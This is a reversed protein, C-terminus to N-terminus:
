IASCTGCDLCGAQHGSQPAAPWKNILVQVDGNFTIVGDKNLDACQDYTGGSSPWADILTQVDGNFTLYCDGNTDGCDFCDYSWCAPGSAVTVSCTGLSAGADSGDYLIVGGRFTDEEAISVTTDGSVTIKCLTGADAPANPSDFDTPTHLSCLELIVSSTGTGTGAAGPDSAPAVPTGYDDVAGTTSNVDITGPYIGFGTGDTSYDGVADVTAGGDVSVVLAFARPLDAGAAGSYTIAVVGSGEDSCAVTVAAFSPAAMALILLLGLFKKM